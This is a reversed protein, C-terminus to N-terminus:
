LCARPLRPITQACVPSFQTATPGTKIGNSLINSGLVAPSLRARNLLFPGSCHKCKINKIDSILKKRNTMKKLIKYKHSKTLSAHSLRQRKGLVNCTKM